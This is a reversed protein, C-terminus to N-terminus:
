KHFLSIPLNECNQNQNKKNQGMLVFYVDLMNLFTYKIETLYYLVNRLSDAKSKKGELSYQIVSCEGGCLEITFSIIIAIHM